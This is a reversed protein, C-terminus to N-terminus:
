KKLKACCVRADYPSEGEREGAEEGRDLGCCHVVRTPLGQFGKYSSSKNHYLERGRRGNLQSGAAYM